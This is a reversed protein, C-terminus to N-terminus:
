CLGSVAKISYIKVDIFIIVVYFQDNYKLLSLRVDVLKRIQVAVM